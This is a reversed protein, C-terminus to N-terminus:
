QLKIGQDDTSSPTPHTDGGNEFLLYCLALIVGLLLVMIIRFKM